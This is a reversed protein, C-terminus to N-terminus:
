GNKVAKIIDAISGLAGTKEWVALIQDAQETNIFIAFVKDAKTKSSVKLSMDAQYWSHYTDVGHHLYVCGKYGCLKPDIKPTIFQTNDIRIVM